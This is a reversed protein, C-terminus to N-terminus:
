DNMKYETPDAAQDDWPTKLKKFGDCQPDQRGFVSFMDKRVEEQWDTHIALLFLTWPLMSSTTEQGALYFTKCEDVLDDITIRKSRDEEIYAQVLLGLFDNGFGYSERSAIKEERKEIIRLIADLIGKELKEGKIEDATKWIKDNNAGQRRNRRTLTAM